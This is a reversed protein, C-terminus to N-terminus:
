QEAQDAFEINSGAIKIPNIAQWYNTMQQLSKKHLRLLKTKSPVLVEKNSHCYDEKLRVLYQLSHIDNSALVIDDAQGVAGVVSSGM